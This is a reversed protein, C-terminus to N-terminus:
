LSNPHAHFLVLIKRADYNQMSIKLMYPGSDNLTVNQFLLSGNRYITERGSYAPGTRTVNTSTIFRAIENKKDENKGKFWYFVRPTETLNHVLLLANEGEDVHPPVEEVSIQATTPSSWYILLSAALLLGRWLLQGKHLPASSLEM